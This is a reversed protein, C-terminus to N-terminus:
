CLYMVPVPSRRWTERERESAIAGFYFTLLFSVDNNARVVALMPARRWVGTQVDCEGM